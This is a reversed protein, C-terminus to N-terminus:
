PINKQEKGLYNPTPETKTTKRWDRVYKLMKEIDEKNKLKNKKKYLDIYEQGPKDEVETYNHEMTRYEGYQGGTLARRMGEEEFGMRKNTNIDQQRTQKEKNKKQEEIWKQMKFIQEPTKPVGFTDKYIKELNYNEFTKVYEM